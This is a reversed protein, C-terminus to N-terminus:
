RTDVYGIEARASPYSCSGGFLELLAEGIDGGHREILIEVGVCLDSGDWFPRNEMRSRKALAMDRGM